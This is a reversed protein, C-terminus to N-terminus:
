ARPELEQQAGQLLGQTKGGVPTMLFEQMSGLRCWATGATIHYGLAWRWEWM